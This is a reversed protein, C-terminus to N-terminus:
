NRGTGGGLFLNSYSITSKSDLSLIDLQNTSFHVIGANRVLIPTVAQLSRTRHSQIRHRGVDEPVEMFTLRSLKVKTSLSINRFKDTRCLFLSQIHNKTGTRIDTCFPIESTVRRPQQFFLIHSIATFIRTEQGITFSIDFFKAFM